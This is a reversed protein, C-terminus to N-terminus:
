FFSLQLSTSIYGIVYYPMYGRDLSNQIFSWKAFNVFQAWKTLHWILVVSLIM